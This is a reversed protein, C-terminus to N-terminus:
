NSSFVSKWLSLYQFILFVYFIVYSHILTNVSKPSLRKKPDKGKYPVSYTNCTICATEILPPPPSGSGTLVSPMRGFTPIPHNGNRVRSNMRVSRGRGSPRCKGRHASCVGKQVAKTVFMSVQGHRGGYATWVARSRNTGLM